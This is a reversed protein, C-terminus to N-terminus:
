TCKFNTMVEVMWDIMRARLAPSIEHNELFMGFRPETDKLNQMIEPIYIKLKSEVTPTTFKGLPTKVRNPRIGGSGIFSKSQIKVNQITSTEKALDIEISKTQHTEM